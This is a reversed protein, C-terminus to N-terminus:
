PTSQKTKFVLWGLSTKCLVGIIKTPKKTYFDTEVFFSDNETNLFLVQSNPYKKRKKINSLIIRRGGLPFYEMNGLPLIRNEYYKTHKKPDTLKLAKAVGERMKDWSSIGKETDFSTFLIPLPGTYKKQYEIDQNDQRIIFKKLTERIIKSEHLSYHHHTGLFAVYINKRGDLGTSEFVKIIPIEEKSNRLIIYQPQM